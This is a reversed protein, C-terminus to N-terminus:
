SRNGLTYQTSNVFVASERHNFYSPIPYVGFGLGESGESMPVQWIGFSNGPDVALATRVHEITIANALGATHACEGNSSGFSFLPTGYFRSRLVQYIRIHNQLLEPFRSVQQLEGSQLAALDRWTAGGFSLSEDQGLSLASSQSERYVHILALLVYRALDTEFEDLQIQKWRSLTKPRKEEAAIAEWAQSITEATVSQQESSSADTRTKDKNGRRRAGELVKFLQVTDEGERALWSEQCSRDCFMLGAEAYDRCTLFGRRGCEYRWCEACVETRFQKYVTNTYPTPIDLLCFGAPLDHAARYSRGTLPSVSITLSDAGVMPAMVFRHDNCWADCQGIAM